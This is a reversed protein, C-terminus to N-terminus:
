VISQLEAVAEENRKKSAKERSFVKEMFEYYFSFDVQINCEKDNVGILWLGTDDACDKGEHISTQFKLVAGNVKVIINTFKTDEDEFKIEASDMDLNLLLEEVKNEASEDAEAKCPCAQAIELLTNLLELKDVKSSFDKTEESELETLGIHKSAKVALRYFLAGNELEYSVPSGNLRDLWYYSAPKKMEEIELIHYFVFINGNLNVRLVSHANGTAATKGQTVSSGEEVEATSFDIHRLLTKVLFRFKNDTIAVKGKSMREINSKLAEINM